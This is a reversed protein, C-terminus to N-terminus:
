KREGIKKAPIGGYICFPSVDETVVAGAAIVAGSGIKVGKLIKAGTSIWVDDGIEIPASKNQQQNIPLEKAIEHDSDVIYVFPAILCDSGIKIGSSAYIFTYFGVTTREGIEISAQENCACINAGKKLVAQKHIKINKPFRLLSVGKDIFVKKGLFGLRRSQIFFRIRHILKFKLHKRLQSTQKM